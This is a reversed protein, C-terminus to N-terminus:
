MIDKLGAENVKMWAAYTLFPKIHCIDKDIIEEAIDTLETCGLVNLQGQKLLAINSPQTVLNLLEATSITHMNM